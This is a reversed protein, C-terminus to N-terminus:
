CTRGLKWTIVVIWGLNVRSSMMWGVRGQGMDGFDIRRPRRDMWRILM